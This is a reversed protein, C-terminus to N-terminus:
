KKNRKNKNKAKNNKVKHKKKNEMRAKEKAELDRQREVGYVIKVRGEPSTEIFLNKIM